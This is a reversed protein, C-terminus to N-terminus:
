GPLLRTKSILVQIYSIKGEMASKALAVPVDVTDGNAIQAKIVGTIELNLEKAMKPTVQLDGTFGTDLVCFTKQVAEKWAVVTQILPVNEIFIGTIM